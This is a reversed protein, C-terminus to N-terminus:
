LIPWGAHRHVIQRVRVVVSIRLFYPATCVKVRKASVTAAQRAFVGIGALVRLDAVGQVVEDELRRLVPTLAPRKFAARGRGRASVRRGRGTGRLSSRRAARRGFEPCQRRIPRPESRRADSAARATRLRKACASMAAGCAGRGRRAGTRVRVWVAQDDRQAVRVCQCSAEGNRLPRARMM